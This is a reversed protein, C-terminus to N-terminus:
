DHHPKYFNLLKRAESAKAITPWASSAFGSALLTVEALISYRTFALLVSVLAPRGRRAYKLESSITLLYDYIALGLFLTSDDRQLLLCGPVLELAIGIAASYFNNQIIRALHYSGRFM